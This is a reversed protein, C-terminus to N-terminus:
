RGACGAVYHNSWGPGQVFARRQGTDLSLLPTVPRSPTATKQGAAIDFVRATEATVRCGSRFSQLCGPVSRASSVPLLAAISCRTRPPERQNGRLPREIQRRPIARAAAALSLASM